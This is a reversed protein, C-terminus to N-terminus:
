SSIGMKVPCSRCVEPPTTSNVTRRVFQYVDSNWVADLGQDRLNGTVVGSRCCLTATGDTSVLMNRWPDFCPKLPEPRSEGEDPILGGYREMALYDSDAYPLFAGVGIGSDAARRQAEDFLEKVRGGHDRPTIAGFCRNINMLDMFQVHDAGVKAALDIFAPIEELNERVVVFSVTFRAKGTGAHRERLARFGLLNEMLQGFLGTGTVLRYTSATASNISVNLSFNGYAMLRQQWLADFLTGNTSINIEIGPFNAVVYDFIAGYEPNLFPEGWGWLQVVSAWHLGECLPIFQELSLNRYQGAMLPTRETCFICRLNCCTGTPLQLVQPLSAVREKQFISELRSLELNMERQRGATAVSDTM